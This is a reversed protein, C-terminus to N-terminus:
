NRVLDRRISIHWPLCRREIQQLIAFLVMGIASLMVIAAFQRAVDLDATAMMILYGLGRDAGVFEAVVAGIVALVIAVKMGAFIGPLSNPLQFRRFIQFRTAGMSRALNLMEPSLSKLGVVSNSVIPFFAMLVVIIIKPGIGFGFWALFLPALAVKPITQSGIILPYIAREFARSHALVVALPVGVILSLGFGLLIEYSTVGAEYLLLRWNAAADAAIIAPSPLLYAPLSLCMTALQWVALLILLTLAAYPFEIRRCRAADPIGDRPSPAESINAM